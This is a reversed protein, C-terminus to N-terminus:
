GKAPVYAQELCIGLNTHRELSHRGQQIFAWSERYQGVVSFPSRCIFNVFLGINREYRKAFEYSLNEKEEDTLNLRDYLVHDLNCSMYYAQYPVGWLQKAETLRRICERKQKNRAEIGSVDKTCIKEPSYRPAAANPDEQIDAPDIFAGDMDLIHVIRDFHRKELHNNKAFGKVRSAVRELINSGDAGRETTMDGHEIFIHVDNQDFIQELLVSLATDDSPGEVLFLIVKKHPMM